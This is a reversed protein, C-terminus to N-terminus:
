ADFQQESWHSAPAVVNTIKKYPAAKQELRTVRQYLAEERAAQKELAMVLRHNTEVLEALKEDALQTLKAALEAHLDNDGNGAPMAPAAERRQKVDATSQDNDQLGPAQREDGVHPPVDASAKAKQGAPSPQGSVRPGTWPKRFEENSMDWFNNAIGPSRQRREDSIPASVSPAPADTSPEFQLPTSGLDTMFCEGQEDQAYAKEFSARQKALLDDDNSRVEDPLEDDLSLSVACRSVACPALRAPRTCMIAQLGAAPALWSLLILV